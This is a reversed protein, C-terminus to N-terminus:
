DRWIPGGLYVAIGPDFLDLSLDGLRPGIFALTLIYSMNRLAKEGTLEENDRLIGLCDDFVKSIQKWKYKNSM